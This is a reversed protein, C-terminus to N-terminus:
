TVLYAYCLKGLLKCGKEVTRRRMTRPRDIRRCELVDCSAILQQGEKIHARCATIEAKQDACGRTYPKVGVFNKM